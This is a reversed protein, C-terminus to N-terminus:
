PFVVVQANFGLFYDNHYSKMIRSDPDTTNIKTKRQSDLVPPKPKRGRLKKGDSNESEEEVRQKMLENYEQNERTSEENM